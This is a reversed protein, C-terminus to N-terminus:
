EIFHLLLPFGPTVHFKNGFVVVLGERIHHDCLLSHVFDQSIRRMLDSHLISSLPPCVACSTTFAQPAFRLAPLTANKVGCNLAKNSIAATISIGLIQDVVVALMM